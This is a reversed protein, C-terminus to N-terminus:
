TAVRAFAREGAGKIVAVYVSEDTAFADFAAQLENHMEPTIANLADPRNLLIQEVNGARTVEICNYESM